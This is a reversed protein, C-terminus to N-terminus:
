SALSWTFGGRGNKTWPKRSILGLEELRLMYRRITRMSGFGVGDRVDQYSVDLAGGAEEIERTLYAYVIAEFMGLGDAWRAEYSTTQVNM